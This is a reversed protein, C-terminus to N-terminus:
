AFRTRDCTRAHSVYHLSLFTILHLCLMYGVLVM